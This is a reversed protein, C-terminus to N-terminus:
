VIGYGACGGTDWSAGLYVAATTKWKSLAKSLAIAEIKHSTEHINELTAVIAAYTANFEKVCAEQALWRIDMPKLFTLMSSCMVVEKLELSGSCFVMFCCCRGFVQCMSLVIYMCTDLQMTIAPTWKLPCPPM